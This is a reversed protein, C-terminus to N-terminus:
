KGIEVLTFNSVVNFLEAIHRNKMRICGKSAPRGILDERSTGHIYVCRKFTDIGKGKNIGRELGDLRLIRTTIARSQDNIAIRGTNKRGEFITGISAGMGIKGIICHVGAPTKYSGEINGTGKKSTSVPYRRVIKGGKFLILRQTEISIYIIM